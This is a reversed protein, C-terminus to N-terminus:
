MLINVPLSDTPECSTWRERRIWVGLGRLTEQIGIEDLLDGFPKHFLFPIGLESPGSDVPM